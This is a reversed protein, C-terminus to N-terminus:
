WFLVCNIGKSKTTLYEVKTKNIIIDHYDESFLRVEEEEKIDLAVKSEKTQLLIKERLMREFDLGSTLIEKIETEDFLVITRKKIVDSVYQVASRTFDSMSFYIGITNPQRIEMKSSLKEIATRDVPKKWFRTEVLLHKGEFNAILDIQDGSETVGRDRKPQLGYFRFLDFILGEFAYGRTQPNEINKIEEFKEELLMQNQGSPIM